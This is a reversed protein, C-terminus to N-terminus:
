ADEEDDQEDESEYYAHPLAAIRERIAKPQGRAGPARAGMAGKRAEERRQEEAEKEAQVNAAAVLEQRRQEWHGIDDEWLYLCEDWSETQTRLEKLMEAISPAFNKSRRLERCTAELASASPNAAVIEEILMGVYGEGNGPSANPFSALLLGVKETVVRRTIERLTWCGTLNPRSTKRERYLEDREFVERGAAFEDYWHQLDDVLFVRKHEMLDDIRSLMIRGAEAYADFEFYEGKAKVAPVKASKVTPANATLAASKKKRIM